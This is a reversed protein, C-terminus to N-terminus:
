TSASAASSISWCAAARSPAPCRPSCSAPRTTTTCRMSSVLGIDEQWSLGKVEKVEGLRRVEDLWQRLDHYALQPATNSRAAADAATGAAGIPTSMPDPHASM